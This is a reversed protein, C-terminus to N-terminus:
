TGNRSKFAGVLQAVRSHTARRTRAMRHVYVVIDWFARQRPSELLRALRDQLSGPWGAFADQREVSKQQRLNVHRVVEVGSIRRGVTGM